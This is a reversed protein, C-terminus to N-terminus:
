EGEICVMQLTIEHGSKCMQNHEAIVDMISAFDNTSM